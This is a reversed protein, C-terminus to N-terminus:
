LSFIMFYCFWIYINRSVIKNLNMIIEIVPEQINNSYEHSVNESKTLAICTAKIEGVICIIFVTHGPYM